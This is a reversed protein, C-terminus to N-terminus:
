DRTLSFQRKQSPFFLFCKKQPLTKQINESQSYTEKCFKEGVFAINQPHTPNQFYGRQRIPAPESTPLIKTAGNPAPQVKKSEFFLGM